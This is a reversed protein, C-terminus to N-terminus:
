KRHHFELSPKGYPQVHTHLSLRIHLAVPHLLTQNEITRGYGFFDHESAVEHSQCSKKM